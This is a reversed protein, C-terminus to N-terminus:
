RVHRAFREAAAFVWAEGLNGSNESASVLASRAMIEDGEIEGNAVQALRQVHAATPTSEVIEIMDAAAGCSSASIHPPQEPLFGRVLRKLVGDNEAEPSVEQHPALRDVLLM